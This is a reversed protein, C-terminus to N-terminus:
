FSSYDTECYDSSGNPFPSDITLLLYFIIFLFYTFLFSVKWFTPEAKIRKTPVKRKPSQESNDQDVPDM